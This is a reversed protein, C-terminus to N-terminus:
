PKYDRCMSNSRGWTKLCYSYEIQKAVRNEPRYMKCASSGVWVNSYMKLCHRYEIPKAQKSNPRYDRCLALASPTYGFDDLCAQYEISQSGGAAASTPSFPESTGGLILALCFLIRFSMSVGWTTLKRSM